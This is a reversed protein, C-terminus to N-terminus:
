LIESGPNDQNEFFTDVIKNIFGAGSNSTTMGDYMDPLVLAAREHRPMSAFEEDTFGYQNAQTAIFEEELHLAMRSAVGKGRHDPHTFIFYPKRIGNDDYYQAHLCILLGEDDRLSTYNMNVPRSHGTLTANTMPSVRKSFGPEGYEGFMKEWFFWHSFDAEPLTGALPQIPRDNNADSM